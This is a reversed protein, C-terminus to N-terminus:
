PNQVRLILGQPNIKSALTFLELNTKYNSFLSSNTFHSENAM